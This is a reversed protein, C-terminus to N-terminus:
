GAGVTVTMQDGILQAPPSTVPTWTIPPNLSSASELVYTSAAAPWSIIINSGARTVSLQVAQVITKVSASNNVKFPDTTISGVSANNTITGAISPRVLITATLSSGSGLDGLNTFTVVNGNLSYGPSASIFSVGAPLTNTLRVSAATAPGSNAVTLTYTLTQGIAVPDPADELTLLLDATPSAM